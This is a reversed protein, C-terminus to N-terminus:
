RVTIVPGQARPLGIPNNSHDLLPTTAYRVAFLASRSDRQVVGIMWCEIVGGRGRGMASGRARVFARRRQDTGIGARPTM